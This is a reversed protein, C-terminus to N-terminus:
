LMSYMLLKTQMGRKSLYWRVKGFLTKSDRQHQKSGFHPKIMKKSNQFTSKCFTALKKNSQWFHPNSRMCGSAGFGAVVLYVSKKNRVALSHTSLADPVLSPSNNFTVSDFASCRSCLHALVIVAMVGQM